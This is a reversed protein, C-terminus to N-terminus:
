THRMRANRLWALVKPKKNRSRRTPFDTGGDSRRLYLHAPAAVRAEAVNPSRM